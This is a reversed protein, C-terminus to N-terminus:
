GSGPLSGDNKRELLELKTVMGVLQFVLLDHAARAKRLENMAWFFGIWGLGLVGYESIAKLLAPVFGIEM